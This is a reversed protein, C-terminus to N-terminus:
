ATGRVECVIVDLRQNFCIMDVSRYITRGCGCCSYMLPFHNRTGSREGLHAKAPLHTKQQLHQAREKGETTETDEDVVLWFGNGNDLEENQEPESEDKSTPKHEETSMNEWGDVLNGAEPSTGVRTEDESVLLLESTEEMEPEELKLSPPTDSKNTSVQENGTDTRDLISPSPSRISDCSDTIESSVNVGTQCISDNTRGGSELGSDGGVFEEEMKEQGAEEIPDTETDPVTLDNDSERSSSLPETKVKADRNLEVTKINISGSPGANGDNRKLLTGMPLEVKTIVLQVEKLKPHHDRSSPPVFSSSSHASISSLPSSPPDQVYQNHSTPSPELKPATFINDLCSRQSSGPPKWEQSPLLDSPRAVKVTSSYDTRYKLQSYRQSIKSDRVISSSAVRCIPRRGIASVGESDFSYVCGLPSLVEVSPTRYSRILGIPETTTTPTTGTGADSSQIAM